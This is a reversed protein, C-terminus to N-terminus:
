HFFYNWNPPVNMCPIFNDERSCIIDLRIVREVTPRYYKLMGECGIKIHHPFNFIDFFHIHNIRIFNYNM